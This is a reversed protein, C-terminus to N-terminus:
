RRGERARIAERAIQRDDFDHKTDGIIQYTEHGKGAIIVVDGERAENIALAIARRRDPEVTSRILSEADFGAVIDDIISEPCESRPNDSTVFIVDALRGAVRAMRPRKTRDRDGGCGFVVIVRGSGRIENMLTLVNELAADTHAYDVLVRYPAEVDIAELRGPVSIGREFAPIIANMDLGMALAAGASSLLNYANHRGLLPTQFEVEDGRWDLTMTTGGSNMRVITGRLDCANDMGFAVSDCNIADLLSSARADDVNVVATADPSLQEFLKRKAAFYSDADKHYDMHDGSLNTFVGVNFEMGASRYQDLAHSSVEMVLHSAEASLSEACLDALTVGDPTTNPADISRRTTNYEITGLLAAKTGSHELVRRIIYATTSKGKTGTIGITVLKRSPWGHFAQALPGAWKRTDDVVARPTDAEITSDDMCVISSAGNEIAVPIFRHGDVRTGKIAIYCKGPACQRSDICVGEVRADHRLSRIVAGSSKLLESFLM